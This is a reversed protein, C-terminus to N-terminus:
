PDSAAARAAALSLAFPVKLGAAVPQQHEGYYSADAVTREEAVASLEEATLRGDDDVDGGGRLASTLHHSFLGAQTDDAARLPRRPSTALLAVTGAGALIAVDDQDAAPDGGVVSRGLGDFSCDLVLLKTGPLDRLRSSLEDLTLAGSGEQDADYCLLTPAGTADRTGYGAFYFILQDQPRLRRKAQNLAAELDARTARSGTLVHAQRAPLGCSEELAAVFDEADSAAYPLAPLSVPDRYNGLGVSVVLTKAMREKQKPADLERAAEALGEVLGQGLQATAAPLLARAIQRWNDADNLPTIFGFFQWGRDFEDFTGSVEVPVQLRMLVQESDVSRVVVDATASLTYEETAVFWAPIMWWVWNVINPIWWSNHGDYTARMDRLELEVLLDEAREWAEDRADPGEAARVALFVQNLELWRQLEKGLAQENIVEAATYGKPVEDQALRVRPQALCVALSAPEVEVVSRPAEGPPISSCGSALLILLPLLARPAPSPM